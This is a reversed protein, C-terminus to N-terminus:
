YLASHKKGCQFVGSGDSHFNEMQSYFDDSMGGIQLLTFHSLVM